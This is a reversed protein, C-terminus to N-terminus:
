LPPVIQGAGSRWTDTTMALDGTVARKFGWQPDPDLHSVAGPARVSEFYLDNLGAYERKPLMFLEDITADAGALAAAYNHQTGFQFAFVAGAGAALWGSAYNDVRERAVDETPIPTGWLGNGSTYCGHMLMVVAHPALRVNERIPKAGYYKVEEVGSGAFANLGMGNQQSEFSTVTNSPFGYGHGLYAVFSAGQVAALVNEWTANPFFVRHVEMGAAEAQLAMEEAEALNGATLEDEPGVIFVAKPPVIPSSAPSPQAAVTTPTAT